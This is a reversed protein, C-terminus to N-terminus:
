LGTKSVGYEAQEHTFGEFELQEVLSSHSFSSTKLYSQAKLAAQENWDAGCMSVAKIADSESFGEFELQKVLGSASFASTKLYSMAKALANQESVTLNSYTNDTTDNKTTEPLDKVSRSAYEREISTTNSNSATDKETTEPLDKTIHTASEHEVYAPTPEKKILTNVAFPLVFLIVFLIGLILAVVEGTKMEANKNKSKNVFMWQVHKGTENEVRTAVDSCFEHQGKNEVNQYITDHKRRVGNEEIEVTARNNKYTVYLKVGDKNEAM